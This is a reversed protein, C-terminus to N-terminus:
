SQNLNPLYAKEAVYYTHDVTDKNVAYTIFARANTTDSSSAWDIWTEFKINLQGASLMGGDPYKNASDPLGTMGDITPDIYLSVLFNWLTLTQLDTAYTHTVLLGGGSPITFPGALSVFSSSPISQIEIIDAGIHQPSKIERLNRQLRAVDNIFRSDLGQAAKNVTM